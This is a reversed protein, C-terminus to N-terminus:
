TFMIAAHLTAAGVFVFVVLVVVDVAAVAANVFLHKNSNNNM